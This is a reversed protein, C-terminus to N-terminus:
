YDLRKLYNITQELAKDYAVGKLRLKHAYALAKSYNEKNSTKIGQIDKGRVFPKQLLNNYDNYKDFLYKEKKNSLLRIFMLDNCDISEDFMKNISYETGIRRKSLEHMNLVYKITTKNSVFRNLLNNVQKRNLSLCLSSLMYEYPHNVKDRYKIAKDNVEKIERFWYNNQNMKNLYKFFISPKGKLLCKKLEDEVRQKSLTTLDINKCLKITENDIKFNFRSAFQCARLVRLPDEPFTNKDVYRIVKNNIDNVGNFPDIIKGTLVNKYIANITFDRRQIAKTTGINPDVDVKFDKHGKGIKTESRPLAIDINHGKLSYVGFSKGYSLPEGIKLLVKYLEEESIGHIEIDLDKNEIGLFQDRVYGGVYYTQGGIKSVEKAIIQEIIM